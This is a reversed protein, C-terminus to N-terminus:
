WKWNGMATSPAQCFNFFAARVIPQSETAATPTSVPISPVQPQTNATTELNSQIDTVPQIQPTTTIVQPLQQNIATIPTDCNIITFDRHEVIDDDSSNDDLLGVEPPNPELAPSPPPLITTSTTPLNVNSLLSTPNACNINIVKDTIPLNMDIIPLNM